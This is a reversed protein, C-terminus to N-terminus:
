TIGTRALHKHVILLNALDNAIHKFHKALWKPLCFFNIFIM